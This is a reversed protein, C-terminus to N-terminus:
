QPLAGAAEAVADPPPCPDRFTFAYPTPGHQRLHALRQAAEESTPVHGAPVWWLVMYADRMKDFWERRRKFIQAHDSRYVYDHLADVGDWVSMNVLVDDGFPRIATADGAEDQLRWVFGPAAEALANIRDLEAVFGALQPSDLPALLTAINLQALQYTPM